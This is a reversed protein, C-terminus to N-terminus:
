RPYHTGADLMGATGAAAASQQDAIDAAGDVSANAEGASPQQEMQVNTDEQPAVPAGSDLSQTLEAIKEKFSDM